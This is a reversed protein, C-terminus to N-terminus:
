PYPTQDNYAFYRPWANTDVKDKSVEPYHLRLVPHNSEDYLLEQKLGPMDANMRSTSNVNDMFYNFLNTESDAFEAAIQVTAQKFLTKCNQYSSIGGVDSFINQKLLWILFKVYFTKQTLFAANRVRVFLKRNAPADEIDQFNIATFAQYNTSFVYYDAGVHTCFIMQRFLEASHLHLPTIAFKIHIWDTRTAMLDAITKPWFASHQRCQGHHTQADSIACDKNCYRITSAPGCGHCIFGCDYQGIVKACESWACQLTLESSLIVKNYSPHDSLSMPKPLKDWLILNAPVIHGHFNVIPPSTTWAAFAMDRTWIPNDSLKVCIIADSTSSQRQTVASSSDDSSTSIITSEKKPASQPTSLQMNTGPLKIVPVAVTQSVIPLTALRETPDTDLNMEQGTNVPPTTLSTMTEVGSDIIGNELEPISNETVASSDCCAHVKGEDLVIESDHQASLSLEPEMAISDEAMTAKLHHPAIQTPLISSAEDDLTIIAQSTSALDQAEDQSSKTAASSKRAVAARKGVAPKRGSMAAQGHSSATSPSETKNGAVNHLASASSIEAGPTVVKSTSNKKLSTPSVNAIGNSSAKIKTVKTAVGPMASPIRSDTAGSIAHTTTPLKPKPELRSSLKFDTSVKGIASKTPKKKEKVTQWDSGTTASSLMSKTAHSSSALNLDAQSLHDHEQKNVLADLIDSVESESFIRTANDGMKLGQQLFVDIVHKDVFGMSTFKDISAQNYQDGNQKLKSPTIVISSEPEISDNSTIITPENDVVECSDTATEEGQEIKDGTATELKKQTDGADSKLETSGIALNVKEAELEPAKLRKTLTKRAKRSLQSKPRGVEQAATVIDNTRPVNVLGTELECIGQDPMRSEVIVRECGDSTATASTQELEAADALLHLGFASVDASVVPGRAPAYHKGTAHKQAFAMRSSDVYTNSMWSTEDAIFEKYQGKSYEHLVEAKYNVGRQILYMLADLNSMIWRLDKFRDSYEVQYNGVGFVENAAEIFAPSAPDSANQSGRFIKTKADHWLMYYNSKEDAANSQTTSYSDVVSKSWEPFAM